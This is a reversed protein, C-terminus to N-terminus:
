EVGIVLSKITLYDALGYKSGERGFGSEKVGGFPLAAESIGGTNVGVMGVNLEEAVRFVKSIDPSYFYGALGVETNNALKLVEEESSFKFLPAVPGFTEEHAVDMEQTCDSLITLDHFFEGIDPRHNGGLLVKAGKEVADKIHQQVKALSREHILPGHTISEQLGNGLQTTEKVKQVFKSAFEDYITEHVFIRNACVCTQGSSRFKATIAGQVAKDIDADEFVIFPANGGLEFTLKKLTTSSQKMLLKGVNTSGTFSVKKVLPHECIFQGVEATKNAPLVNVVGPPIGAEEALHAISLASLPTESAPKIVSTCGVAIAAGLKRTIMAAPFNWPTLLGCVGIPQKLTIIRNAGNASSIVDGDVRPAEEAFWQFFSAAYRVEGLADAYSKGNELVILKALDDENKIMLSYLKQLLDARYRGTTKKFSHFAVEAAEIADGFEKTDFAYVDAIKDEKKTARAPNNVSFTKRESSEIWNGNVYGKTRILEQNKFEKLVQPSSVAALQRRFIKLM